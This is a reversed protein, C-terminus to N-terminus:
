TPGPCDPPRTPGAEFRCLADQLAPARVALNVVQFFLVRSDAPAPARPVKADFRVVTKGPRLELTTQWPTGELQVPLEQVRGAATVAVIGSVAALAGTLGVLQTTGAPNDIVLQSRHGAWHWSKEATQEEAYFGQGYQVTVPDLVARRLAAQGDPSLRVQVADRMPQLDYYVLRGDTSTLMPPGLVSTVAQEFQSVGTQTGPQAYGDRNIYVGRFGITALAALATNTPLTDLAMQWDGENRGEMAGYSWRLDHTHLYGIFQEYDQLKGIPGAEPFRVIPYEFVMAGHPLRHELTRFFWDDYRYRQAVARYNPADHSTTEDFVGVALTIAVIGAIVGVAVGRARLHRLLIDLLLGAVLLAFFAIFLVIRNWTRLTTLGALALLYSVGGTVAFLLAVVSLGGLRAVLPEVRSWTASTPAPAGRGRFALSLLVGLAVVLGIGAVVGIAQGSEGPVLSSTRATQELHALAHIRHNETPLLMRALSLSFADVQLLNRNTAVTNAGHVHRYVLYPSNNLMLSVGISAVLAGALLFARRDRRACALVLGVSAILCCAFISNQTDSAGLLVCVGIAFCWRWRRQSRSSRQGEIKFFRSRYDVLWLIVLAIFPVIYYASRAVQQEGHSAHYPLFAYLVAIVLSPGRGLRLYRVVFYASLGVLVFTLVFYANQTAGYTPLFFGLVKITAFHVSEGGLPYDYLNGSFPAGIRPNHLLWGNERISKALMNGFLGDGSYASPVNPHLQWLRYVITFVVAVVAVVGATELVPKIDRPFGYVGAGPVQAVGSRRRARHVRPQTVVSADDRTADVSGLATGVVPRATAGSGHERRM